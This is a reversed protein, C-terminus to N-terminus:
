EKDGPLVSLAYFTHFFSRGYRCDTFAGPSLSEGSISEVTVNEFSSNLLIHSFSEPFDFLLPSIKSFRVAVSVPNTFLIVM